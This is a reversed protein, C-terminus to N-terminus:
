DKKSDTGNKGKLVEQLGQLTEMKANDSIEQKVKEFGDYMVPKMMGWAKSFGTQFAAIWIQDPSAKAEIIRIQDSLEKNKKALTAKKDNVREDLREVDYKDLELKKNAREILVLIKEKEALMEKCEEDLRALDTEFKAELENIKQALWAQEDVRKFGLFSKFPIM